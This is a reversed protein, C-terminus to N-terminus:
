RVPFGRAAAEVLLRGPRSPAVLFATVDVKRGQRQQLTGAVQVSGPERLRVELANGLTRGSLDTAPTGAPALGLAAVQAKRFMATDALLLHDHVVFGTPVLVLFRRTLRHLRPVFVVVLVAGVLTLAIGAVVSGTALLLLGAVLTGTMLGWSLPVPGVLLAAPLRLPFRREEGYASRQVFAIGIEASFALLTVALSGAVALASAPAEAGALASGVAAVVGLPALVRVATLSASAPVLVAVLGGAWAAWLGALVVWRVASARGDLAQGLAPGVLLPLVLWAARLLWVVVDNPTM